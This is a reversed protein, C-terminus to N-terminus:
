YLDKKFYVLDECQIGNEVIASSYNRVFFGKEEHSFNFGCDKYFKINNISSNGTGVYLKKFYSSYYKSVFEIIKKGYGKKQFKPLTVLNKVECTNDDNKVVVCASCVENNDSLVFLDGNSLYKNVMDKDPDAILLLDMYCEKNSIIQKIEM